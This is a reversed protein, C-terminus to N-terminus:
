VTVPVRRPALWWKRLLRLMPKEWMLHYVIGAFTALFVVALFIIEASLPHRGQAMSAIRNLLSIAPDHVLYVSYSAAGLFVLGPPFKVGGVEEAYCLGWVVLAFATGLYMVSLMPSDLWRAIDFLYSAAAFGCILILGLLLIVWHGRYGNTVLRAVAVGMLFELNHANLVFQALLHHAPFVAQALVAAAWIASFALFARKSVFWLSFVSYFLMEHMLTWAPALAPSKGTPFLFLSPIIGIDRPAKSLEPMVEYAALMALSVLIFPPYIRILRKKAYVAWTASGLDDQYHAYYIIFGSLVFFFDVGIYGFYWFGDFPKGYFLDAGLTAHSFVVLVAAIGRGVQLGRYM